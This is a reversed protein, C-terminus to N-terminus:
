ALLFVILGLGAGSFIVINRLRSLPLYAESFDIETIVVWGPERLLFSAGSVPKGRYDTYDGTMEENQTLAARVPETDVRVRLSSNTVYRSQTVMLKDRNVIYTEGTDGIRFTQTDAGLGTIRLGTTLDSLAQPRVRVALVGVTNSTARSTLPVSIMWTLVGDRDRFVDGVYPHELGNRFFEDNGFDRGIRNTNSAAFARGNKNLALLEESESFQSSLQELHRNLDASYQDSGAEATDRILADLSISIARTKLHDLFERLESEAGDSAARLVAHTERHIEQDGKRLSVWGVVIVPLLSVGLFIFLLRRGVRTRLLLQPNRRRIWNDLTTIWTAM